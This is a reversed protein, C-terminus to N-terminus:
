GCQLTPGPCDAEDSGDACDAEADCVYGLPVVTGDACRFQGCDAPEDAGNACDPLGDCYAVPVYSQGDGCPLTECDLEDSADDCDAEGDCEWTPDIASNGDACRFGHEEFCGNACTILTFAMTDAAVGTGCLVNRLTGCESREFCGALCDSAPGTDSMSCDVPGDSLLDCGRLTAAARECPSGPEDDGCAVGALLGWTLLGFAVRLTRKARMPSLSAHRAFALLGVLTLIDAHTPASLRRAALTAVPRAGGVRRTIRADGGLRPARSTAHRPALAPMM